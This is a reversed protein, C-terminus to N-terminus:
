SVRNIPKGGVLSLISKTWIEAANALAEKTYWAFPKLGIATDIKALPGSDLDEGEYAYAAIRKSKLAAAMATEDVIKRDALNVIMVGPKMKNIQERSIFNNTETNSALNVSIMDAEALVQNLSKMGAVTSHKPTRNYAVVNMDLALGLEAVRSGIHGLGIVGLTKSKLETGLDLKYKGGRNRRDSIIIKKAIALLLCLVHEAVSETSYFPVNTVLINRKRCYALDVWDYSTTALAVGKLGPLNSMLQTLRPPAKEFGGFIEPGPAIIQSGQALKIMEEAPYERLESVFVIEGQARLSKAQQANFDKQPAFITIKM